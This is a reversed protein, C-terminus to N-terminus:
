ASFKVICFSAWPMAFSRLPNFGPINGESSLSRKCSGTSGLAPFYLNLRKQNKSCWEWIKIPLNINNEAILNVNKETTSSIAGLHFIVKIEKKHKNLFRLLNKPHIIKCSKRKQLNKRKQTDM